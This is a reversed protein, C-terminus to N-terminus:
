CYLTACSILTCVNLCCQRRPGGVVLGPRASTQRVCRTLSDSNLLSNFAALLSHWQLISKKWRSSRKWSSSVWEQKALWIETSVDCIKLPRWTIQRAFVQSLKGGFGLGFHLSQPVRSVNSWRPCHFHFVSECFDGVYKGFKLFMNCWTVSM